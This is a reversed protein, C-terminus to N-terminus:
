SNLNEISRNILSRTLRRENESEISYFSHKTNASKMREKGEESKAGSSKGGHLIFPNIVTLEM